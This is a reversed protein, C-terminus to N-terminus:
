SSLNALLVSAGRVKEARKPDYRQVLEFITTDDNIADYACFCGADRLSCLLLGVLATLTQQRSIAHFHRKSVSDFIKLAPLWTM